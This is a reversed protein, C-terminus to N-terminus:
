LNDPNHQANFWADFATEVRIITDLKGKLEEIEKKQENSVAMLSDIITGQAELQTALDDLCALIEATLAEDQSVHGHEEVIARANKIIQQSPIKNM